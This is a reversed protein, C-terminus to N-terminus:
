NGRTHTFCFIVNNFSANNLRSFVERLFYRVEVGIRDFHKLFICIANLHTFHNIYELTREFNEQDKRVGRSDGIGPTDILRILQGHRRFTYAKSVQTMSQNPTYIENYRADVGDEDAASVTKEIEVCKVQYNNDTYTLRTPIVAKLKKKKLAKDLSDFRLYNYYSNIFTSKGVTTEGLLLINIKPKTM